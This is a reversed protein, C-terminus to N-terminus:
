LAGHKYIYVVLGLLTTLLTGIVTIGIGILKRYAQTEAQALMAKIDKLVAEVNDLRNELNEMKEAMRDYREACLEVHAELSEKEINTPNSM